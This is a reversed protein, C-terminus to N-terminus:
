GHHYWSWKKIMDIRYIQELLLLFALTHPFTMPSFSFRYDIFPYVKEREFGYAGGIIFILTWFNQQKQTIFQWFESTSLIDWKIDLLVKYWKLSNLKEVLRQSEDLIIEQMNKKKSPKLIIIEIQKGLRKIYEKIATDFHHYGDSVLIIKLM